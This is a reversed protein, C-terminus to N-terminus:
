IHCQLSPIAMEKHVLSRASMRRTGAGWSYPFLNLISSGMPFHLCWQPCSCKGSKRPLPSTHTHTYVPSWSSQVMSRSLSLIKNYLHSFLWLCRFFGLASPSFLSSMALAIQFLSSFLVPHLISFVYHFFCSCVSVCVCLSVYCPYLFFSYSSFPFDM